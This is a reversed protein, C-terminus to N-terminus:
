MNLFLLLFFLVHTLAVAAAVAHGLAVALGTDATMSSGAAWVEKFGPVGPLYETEDLGFCMYETQNGYDVQSCM